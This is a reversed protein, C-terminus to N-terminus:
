WLYETWLRLKVEDVESGCLDVRSEALGLDLMDDCEEGGVALCDTSAFNRNESGTFESSGRENTLREAGEVYSDGREDEM